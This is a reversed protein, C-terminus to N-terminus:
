FGRQFAKPAGIPVRFGGLDSLKEKRKKLLEQNHQLKNANDALAMFESLENGEIGFDAPEGRIAPHQTNNYQRTVVNLRGVWEGPKSALNEALRRRINQIVRDIISLSNVDHKDSKSKHIIGKEELMDDVPGSFENGKDSFIVAPKQSMSRLIRCLAPEVTAAEKNILPATWVFRSMVDILVLIYKFQPGRGRFRSANFKSDILDMQIRFGQAESASRGESKPLPKFLQKSADTALYLRIAERSIGKVKQKKAELFLKDIGVNGIKLQIDKLQEKLSM